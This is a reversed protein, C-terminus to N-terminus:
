LCLGLCCVKKDADTLKSWKANDLEGRAVFHCYLPDTMAAKYWPLQGTLMAFYTVGLSWIDHAPHAEVMPRTTSLEPANYAPTGRGRTLM